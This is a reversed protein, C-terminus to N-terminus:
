WLGPPAQREQSGRTLTGWTRPYSATDPCWAQRGQGRDLDTGGPRPRRRRRRGGARVRANAHGGLPPCATHSHGLALVRALLSGDRGGRRRTSRPWRRGVHPRALGEVLGQHRQPTEAVHGGGADRRKGWLNSADADTVPSSRDAAHPEGSGDKEECAQAGWPPRGNVGAADDEYRQGRRPRQFFLRKRRSLACGFARPSRRGV